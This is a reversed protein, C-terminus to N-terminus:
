ILRRKLSVRGCIIISQYYPSIITWCVSCCWTHYAHDLRPVIYELEGTQRLDNLEDKGKNMNHMHDMWKNYRHFVPNETFISFLSVNLYNHRQLHPWISVYWDHGKFSKINMAPSHPMNPKKTTYFYDTTELRDTLHWKFVPLNDWHDLPETDITCAYQDLIQHFVVGIITTYWELALQM